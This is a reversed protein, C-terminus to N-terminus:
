LLGDSSDGDGADYQRFMRDLGRDEEHVDEVRRHRWLRDVLLVAVPGFLGVFLTALTVALLAEMPVAGVVPGFAAVYLYVLSLLLSVGLSAVVPVLLRAPRFRGGRGVTRGRTGGVDFLYLLGVLAVVGIANATVAVGAIQIAGM